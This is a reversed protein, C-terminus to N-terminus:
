NKCFQLHESSVGCHESKKSPDITYTMTEWSSIRDSSIMVKPKNNEPLLEIDRTYSPIVPAIVVVDEGVSNAVHNALNRRTEKGSGTSCSNLFMTGGPKIVDKLYELNARIDLTNYRYPRSLIFQEAEGHFQWELFDLKGHNKVFDKINNALEADSKAVTICIDYLSYLARLYFPHTGDYFPAWSGTDHTGGVILAKPRSGGSEYCTGYECKQHREGYFTYYECSGPIEFSRGEPLPGFSSMALIKAALLNADEGAQFFRNLLYQARELSVGHDLFKLLHSLNLQFLNFTKIQASSVELFNTANPSLHISEAGISPVPISASLSHPMCISLPPAQPKIWTSFDGCVNIEKIINM